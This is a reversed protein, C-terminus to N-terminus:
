DRIENSVELTSRAGESKRGKGSGRARKISSGKIKGVARAREAQKCPLLEGGGERRWDKATSLTGRARRRTM